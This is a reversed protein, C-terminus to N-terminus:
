GYAVVGSGLLSLFPAFQESYINTSRTILGLSIGVWFLERVHLIVAAVAKHINMRLHSITLEDAKLVWCKFKWSRIHTFLVLVRVANSKPLQGGRFISINIKVTGLILNLKAWLNLSLFDLKEINLYVCDDAQFGLIVMHSSIPLGNEFYPFIHMHSNLLHTLLGLLFSSCHMTCEIKVAHEPWTVCPSQNLMKGFNLILSKKTCRTGILGFISILIIHQLWIISMM